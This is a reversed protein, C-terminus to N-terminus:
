ANQFLSKSGLFHMNDDKGRHCVPRCGELYLHLTLTNLEKIFRCEGSLPVANVKVNRLLQQQRNKEIKVVSAM